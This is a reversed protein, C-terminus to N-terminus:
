FVDYLDFQKSQIASEIIGKGEGEAKWSKRKLVSVKSAWTGSKPKTFFGLAPMTLAFRPDNRLRTITVNSMPLSLQWSKRSIKCPVFRKTFLDWAVTENCNEIWSHPFQPRWNKLLELSNCSSIAICIFAYLIHQMHSMHCKFKSVSVTGDKSWYVNAVKPM